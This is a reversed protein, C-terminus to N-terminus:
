RKGHGPQSVGVGVRQEVGPFLGFGALPKPRRCGEITIMLSIGLLTDVFEISEQDVVVLILACGVLGRVLGRTTM